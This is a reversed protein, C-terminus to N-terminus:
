RRQQALLLRSRTWKALEFADILGVYKWVYEMLEKDTLSKKAPEKM